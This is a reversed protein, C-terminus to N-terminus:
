MRTLTVTVLHAGRHDDTRSRADPERDGAPERPRAQRDRDHRAVLLLQGRRGLGRARRQGHRDIDGVLDRQSRCEVRRGGLQPRRIDHDVVRGGDPGVRDALQGHRLM